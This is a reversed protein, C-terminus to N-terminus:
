RRVGVAHVSRRPSRYTRNEPPQRMTCRSYEGNEDIPIVMSKWDAVSINAFQAPRRCWHDMMAATVRFSDNHLTYVLRLDAETSAIGLLHPEQWEVM